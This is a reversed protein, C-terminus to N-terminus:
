FTYDPTLMGHALDLQYMRRVVRAQVGSQVAQWGSFVLVILYRESRM